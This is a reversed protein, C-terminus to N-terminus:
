LCNYRVRVGRECTDGNTRGKQSSPWAKMWWAASETKSAEWFPSYATRGGFFFFLVEGVGAAAEEPAFSGFSACGGAWSGSGSRIGM